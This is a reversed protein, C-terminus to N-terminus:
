KKLFRIDDGFFPCIKYYGRIRSVIREDYNSFLNQISLNTSIITKTIKNNQNILRTNIINFLETIKISNLYETGLDDIILLDINLLNYYINQQNSSKGFRFDIVSDLMVPATQYLVTKGLKLIENAICNSLFTKGLGTGGTFLLNQNNPQEFNDIFELAIEKIIKINDRPSIGKEQDFVESYYELNFNNFNENQLNTINCKNFEIDFLKQKLCNCMQTNGSITIYGTDKCSSCEYQLSLFNEDVGLSKLINSKKTKLESIKKKLSSLYSKDNSSLIKKAADIAYKNLEDDIIVLDKSLSYLKQKRNMLDINARTRKKEYEKLLEKLITNDM